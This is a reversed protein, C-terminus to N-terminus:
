KLKQFEAFAKEYVAFSLLLLTKLNWNVVNITEKKIKPHNQNQNEPIFVKSGLESAGWLVWLTYLLKQWFKMQMM